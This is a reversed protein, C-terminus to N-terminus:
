AAVELTMQVPIATTTSTSERQRKWRAITQQHAEELEAALRRAEPSMEDSASAVTQSM